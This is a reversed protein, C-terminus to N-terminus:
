EHGYPQRLLCSLGQGDCNMMRTQIRDIIVSFVIKGHGVCPKIDCAVFTYLLADKTSLDTVTIRLETDYGIVTCTSM